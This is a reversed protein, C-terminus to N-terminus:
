YLHSYPNGDTNPPLLVKDHGDNHLAAHKAIADACGNGIMGSHAKVKYFHVPTESSDIM